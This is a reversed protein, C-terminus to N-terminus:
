STLVNNSQTARANKAHCFCFPKVPKLYANPDAMALYKNLTTKPTSSTPQGGAPFRVPMTIWMINLPKKPPWAKTVPSMGGLHLDDDVGQVPTGQALQLQGHITADADVTLYHDVQLHSQRACRSLNLKARSQLKLFRRMTLRCTAKLKCIAKLM